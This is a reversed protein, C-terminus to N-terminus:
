LETRRLIYKIQFAYDKFKCYLCMSKELLWAIFIPFYHGFAAILISMIIMIWGSQRHNIIDSISFGIGLIGLISILWSVAISIKVLVEFLWNFLSFIPILPFMLIRLIVTLIKVALSHKSFKLQIFQVYSISNSVANQIPHDYEKRKQPDSLTEYAEQILRFFANANPADNIDPHYKKALTRYATKIKEPTANDELGLVEYYTMIDSRSHIYNGCLMVKGNM